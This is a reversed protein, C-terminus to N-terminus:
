SYYSYFINVFTLKAFLHTNQINVTGANLTNFNAKSVIQPLGFM